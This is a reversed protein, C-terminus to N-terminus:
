DAFRDLWDLMPQPRRKFEMYGEWRSTTDEIWHLKKETPIADFIAQVDAEYTMRDHRVQYVFTPLTVKAAWPIPTLESFRFGVRLRCAEELEAMRDPLGLSELTRGMIAHVSLPQCLILCRVGAFAGPHEAMAFLTANAGNCRSFLSVAMDRLDDRARVYSLAGLTDRAQFRGSSTLGNFTGSRGMDRSDYTLVNYGADHLIRYDEVYSTETDNGAWSGLSLFPERDTPCGYRNFNLPHNMIVLKDSRERPVFWGEIPVGDSAPFTVEAFTLGFDGPDQLIPARLPHAFGDAVKHLKQAVEGDQSAQQPLEPM